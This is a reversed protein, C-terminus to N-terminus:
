IRSNVAEKFRDLTKIADNSPDIRIGAISRSSIPKSEEPQNQRRKVSPNTHNDYANKITSQM